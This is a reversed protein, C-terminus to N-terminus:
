CRIARSNTGNYKTNMTNQKQLQMKRNPIEPTEFPKKDSLMGAAGSHLGDRQLNVDNNPKQNKRLCINGEFLLNPKHLFEPLKMSGPQHSM